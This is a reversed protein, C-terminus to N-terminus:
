NCKSSGLWGSLSGLSVPAPASRTDWFYLVPQDLTIGLYSQTNAYHRYYYNGSTQSTGGTPALYTPYTREGWAFVCDAQTALSPSTPKIQIQQLSRAPISLSLSVKGGSVATAARSDKGVSALLTQLAAADAQLPSGAVSLEQAGSPPSYVTIDVVSDTLGGVTLTYTQASSNDNTVVVAYGTGSRAALAQLPLSEAAYGAACTSGQCVQASVREADRLPTHAWYAWAAPNIKVKGSTGTFDFLAMLPVAAYFHAAEINLAPDQMVTLVGSAFSQTRQEGFLSNGCQQGLGINWETIHVPKGSGGQNDVLSRLSRLFGGASAVTATACSNYHHASYFDLNGAGVAAVFGNAPNGSVGSTTLISHTFGPGGIRVTKGAAAAAARVRTVTEKYLTYFDAASGRWFGGDPENHVEVYAPDVAIGVTPKFVGIVHKYINTAVKAWAVPDGTNNPGNFSEGLRLYLRGGTAAVEKLTADVTTFDYNNPNDLDADASSTPTWTFTPLSGSGSLECGTVTQPPSVGTNQKTAATYITCLDVGSDHLRVQTVGFAAYLSSADASASGATKGVTFTPKRNAGFLDKVSGSRQSVDLTVTLAGSQAHAAGAVVAALVMAALRPVQFHCFCGSPTM